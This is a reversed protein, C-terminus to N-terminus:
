AKIGWDGRNIDIGPKAIRGEIARPGIKQLLVDRKPLKKPRTLFTLDTTIGSSDLVVNFTSLGHAPTMYQTLTDFETGDVRVEVSENTSDASQTMASMFSYFTPLSVVERVPPNVFTNEVVLHEQYKGREDVELSDLDQTVDMDVIRTELVGRGGNAEKLQEPTPPEGMVIQKRPYAGKETQDSVWYGKYNHEVPYVIGIKQGMHHIWLLRSAYNTFKHIPEEISDCRCVTDVIDEECYLICEDPDGKISERARRQSNQYVMANLIEGDTNYITGTCAPDMFGAAAICDLNCSSGGDQVQTSTCRWHDYDIHLVQASVSGVTGCGTATTATHLVNADCLAQAAAQDAATVGFLNVGANDMCYWCSADSGIPSPVKAIMKDMHPIIAIGPFYGQDMYEPKIIDREWNVMGVIQTFYGAMQRDDYSNIRTYYPVYLDLDSLNGPDTAWGDADSTDTKMRNRLMKEVAEPPTGWANDSIEFISREPCYTCPDTDTVGFPIGFFGNNARLINKFPYSHGKYIKSTPLTSIDHEYFYTAHRQGGELDFLFKPCQREDPPPDVPGYNYIGQALQEPTSRNGFWYGYKGLFDDALEKDYDGVRGQFNENWLGLFVSYNDPNDWIPHQTGGGRSTLGYGEAIRLRKRKDEKYKEQMAPRRALPAANVDDQTTNMSHKHGPAFAPFFGLSQWPIDARLRPDNPNGAGTAWPGPGDIHVSPDYLPDAAGLPNVWTRDEWKRRALDSLWIIRAEDTYKALAMSVYLEDDTRGLNASGDQAGGRLADMPTVVKGVAEEYHKQKRQFPRPPKIYKVVPTQKYTNELTHKEVHNRILSGETGEEANKSDPGFGSEIANKVDTLDIAKELDIGQVFLDELSWDFVFDFSFDAAWASLVERLTGTYSASYTSSRKFDRLNHKYVPDGSYGLPDGGLIYDLVNCLDDFTYEVKPIECNTETFQEKGLLIYGGNVCAQGTEVNVFTGYPVPGTIAGSFPDVAGTGDGAIYIMRTISHPAEISPPHMLKTPRLSNCELCMIRFGFTESIGTVQIMNSPNYWQGANIDVQTMTGHRTALGVFIKDLCMSQDIFSVTLTKSSPSNSFSYSYLYMRHFKVSGLQITYAGSDTVNLDDNTITYNDASEGVISLNIKTPSNSFGITCQAGFIGGGFARGSEGEPSGNKTVKIGQIDKFM